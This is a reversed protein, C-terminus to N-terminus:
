NRHDILEENVIESRMMANYSTPNKNRVDMWFLININLGRRLASLVERDTVQECYTRENTFQALYSKM